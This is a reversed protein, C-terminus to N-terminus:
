CEACFCYCCVPPLSGVSLDQQKEYTTIIPTLSPYLLCTPFKDDLGASTEWAELALDYQRKDYYLNGLYYPAKADNPYIHILSLIDKQQSTIKSDSQAFALTQMLLLGLFILFVRKQVVNDARKEYIQLM